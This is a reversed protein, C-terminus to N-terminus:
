KKPQSDKKAANDIEEKNHSLDVIDRLHSHEMDREKMTADHIALATDAETRKDEANVKAAEVMLKGHSEGADIMVKLRDTNAESQLIDTQKAKIITDYQSIEMEAEKHKSDTEAQMLRAKANMINAQANIMEPDPKQNQQQEKMWKEALTKLIDVGRFDLNDLLVPLGVSNIFAAFETSVKMISIIQNVARNKAIEYNVGAEIKVHFESADYEIQMGQPKGQADKQNILVFEQKGERTIIPVSQPTKYLKPIMDVCWNAVDNLAHLNNVLYPKATANGQSAGEIISIGSLDRKNLGLQSDYSGLINDLMQMCNNFINTVEPPLGVRPVPQIPPLLGKDPDNDMFANYVMTQAVQPNILPQKYEEEQPISEKCIMFKHMVMNEFDNGIMQGALNTLQQIGKAHKIYPKTVQKFTGSDNDRIIVSNGDVFIINNYTYNTETYELVKLENIRYRCITPILAKKEKLVQPPQEIRNWLQLLLEYDKLPISKFDSLQVMITEVDKVEYYDAVVVFKQTKSDEFSWNLAFDKDRSFSMSQAEDDPYKSKYEELSMPFLEYYYRADSKTVKRAMPDFGCLSPEYVQTVFIDQEFSRPNKYDVYCKYMTFGGNIQNRYISYQTNNKNLDYLIHRIRGELFVAMEENQPDGRAASVYISPQQEAFEGALRDIPANVINFEIIPKQLAQLTSTDASTLASQFAFRTFDHFSDYNTKFYQHANEIKKKIDKHRAQYRKAVM